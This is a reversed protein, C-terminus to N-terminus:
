GVVYPTNCYQDLRKRLSPEMSYLAYPDPLPIEIGLHWSLNAIGKNWFM